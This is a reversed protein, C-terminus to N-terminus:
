SCRQHDIARNISLNKERVDSLLQNRRQLWAVDNHHVIQATVLRFANSFREFRRACFQEIQWRVAWVEIRNLLDKGFEFRQQAFIFLSGNFSQPTSQSLENIAKGFVFTRVVEPM